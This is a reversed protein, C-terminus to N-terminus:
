EPRREGERAGENFPNRKSWEQVAEDQLTFNSNKRLKSAARLDDWIDANTINSQNKPDSQMAIRCIARNAEYYLWGPERNADRIGIAETLLKEAKEYDPAQKDRFIFGLQGRYSHVTGGSDTDILAEFVPIAYNLRCRKRELQWCQRRFDRVRNAIDARATPSARMISRQLAKINVTPADAGPHLQKDVLDFAKADELSQSKIGSVQRKTETALAIAQSSIDEEQLAKLFYLRTWLYSFLFGTLSYYVAISLAMVEGYAGNGLSPAIREVFVWLLDYLERVQTLGVGVLIKTLWDSIDELNSNHQFRSMRHSRASVEGARKDGVDIDTKRAIVQPATTRPIAFVFGVVAGLSAFAGSTLGGVCLARAFGYLGQHVLDALTLAVIGVTMLLSLWKLAMRGSRLQYVEVSGEKLPSQDTKPQASQTTNM